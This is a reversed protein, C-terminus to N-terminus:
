NKSTSLKHNEKRKFWLKTYFTSAHKEDTWLVMDRVTWLIRHSCRTDHNRTKRTHEIKLSKNLLALVARFPPSLTKFLSSLILITVPLLKRSYQKKSFIKLGRDPWMQVGLFVMSSKILSTSTHYPEAPFASPALVTHTSEQAIDM